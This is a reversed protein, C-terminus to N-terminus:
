AGIVAHTKGEETWGTVIGRKSGTAEVMVVSAWVRPIGMAAPIATDPLIVAATTDATRDTTARVIMPCATATVAISGVGTRASGCATRATIGGGHKMVAGPKQEAM